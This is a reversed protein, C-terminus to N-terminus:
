RIGEWPPRGLRQNRRVRAALRLWDRRISDEPVGLEFAIDALTTPASNTRKNPESEWAWRMFADPDLPALRPRAM